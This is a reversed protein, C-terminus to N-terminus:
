LMLYRFFYEPNSATDTIYYYRSQVVNLRILTVNKNSLGCRAGSRRWRVGGNVMQLSPQVGTRQILSCRFVPVRTGNSKYRAEYQVSCELLGDRRKSNIRLKIESRIDLM